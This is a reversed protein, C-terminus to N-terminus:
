MFENAATLKYELATQGGYLESYSPECLKFKVKGQVLGLFGKPVSHPLIKIVLFISKIFM